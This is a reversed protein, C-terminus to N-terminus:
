FLLYMLYFFILSTNFFIIFICSLLLVIWQLLYEINM